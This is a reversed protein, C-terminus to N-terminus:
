YFFTRLAELAFIRDKNDGKWFYIVGLQYLTFIKTDPLIEKISLSRKCFDIALALKGKYNYAQGVLSLGTAIGRKNDLEEWLGLCKMGYDLGSNYDGIQLYIGGLLSYNYAIYKKIGIKEYLEKSRLYVELTKNLNGTLSQFQAKQEFNGIIKLAERIKGNEILEEVQNLEEPISINKMKLSKIFFSNRKKRKFLTIINYIKYKYSEM